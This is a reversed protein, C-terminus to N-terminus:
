LNLKYNKICAPPIISKDCGWFMWFTNTVYSMDWNSLDLKKLLSCETFMFSMNTVNSIDWNSINLEKLSKCGHFMFYMDTVNSVDWGSLNLKIIETTDIGNQYLYNDM